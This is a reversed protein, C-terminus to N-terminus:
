EPMQLRTSEFIASNDGMSMRLTAMFEGLHIGIKRYDGTMKAYKQRKGYNTLDTRLNINELGLVAFLQSFLLILITYFLLFIRLDWIVNTLMMVIPTLTPFIRLFFFTKCILFCVIISMLIKSPLIFPDYVIQLVANAVSSWIYVFDVYNSVDSFYAVLGAKYMQTTDYYLPYLISILLITAYITQHWGETEVMCGQSVYVAFVVTYLIHMMCGFFHHYRGYSVWKFDILQQLSAAQFIEIEESDACLSMLNIDQNKWKGDDTIYFDIQPLLNICYKIKFVKSKDEIKDEKAFEAEPFVTEYNNHLQYFSKKYQRICEEDNTHNGPWSDFDFVVQFIQSQFIPKVAISKQIM